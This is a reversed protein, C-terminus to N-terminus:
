RLVAALALLVFALPALFVLLGLLGWCLAALAGILQFPFLLWEGEDSASAPRKPPPAPPTPYRLGLLFLGGPLGVLLAWGFLQSFTM